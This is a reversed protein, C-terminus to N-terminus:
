GQRQYDIWHDDDIDDDDIDDDNNDDDDTIAIRRLRKPDIRAPRM